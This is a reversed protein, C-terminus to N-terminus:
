LAFHLDGDHKQTEEKWLTTMSNRISGVNEHSSRNEPHRKTQCLRRCQLEAVKWHLHPLDGSATYQSLGHPSFDPSVLTSIKLYM